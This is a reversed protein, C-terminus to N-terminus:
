QSLNCLMFGVFKLCTLINELFICLFEILIEQEASGADLLGEGRGCLRDARMRGKQSKSQIRYFHM